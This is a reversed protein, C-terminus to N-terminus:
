KGAISIGEDIQLSHFDASRIVKEFRLDATFVQLSGDPVGQRTSMYQVGQACAFLLVARYEFIGAFSNENGVGVEPEPIEIFRGTHKEIGGIVSQQM